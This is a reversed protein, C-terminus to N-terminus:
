GKNFYGNNKPKNNRIKTEKNSIVMTRQSNNRIKIGKNSIVM